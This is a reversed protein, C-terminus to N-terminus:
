YLKSVKPNKRKINKYSQNFGTSVTTVDCQLILMQDNSEESWFHKVRNSLQAETKFISLKDVQCNFKFNPSVYLMPNAYAGLAVRTFYKVNDKSGVVIYNQNWLDYLSGYIIELDTLILPRGAEVCMMIRRLVSYYYDEQDDPFQSGSAIARENLLREATDVLDNLNFQPRQVLLARSSKSNDLRWNSIGIVSVTPGTAPYSPELLSHLVKLPNFPSTEALGVEDLLVVSAVPFQKSTTEQFKNAKEFVKIIGESTSSSSGQHPILYVQALKRFYRDSSDPGRLSSSILRVALSKSSGPAGPPPYVHGKKWM